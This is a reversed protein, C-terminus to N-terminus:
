GVMNFQKGFVVGLLISIASFLIMATTPAVPACPPPRARTFLSERARAFSYNERVGLLRERTVRSEALPFRIRV